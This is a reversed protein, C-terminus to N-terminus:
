KAAKSKFGPPGVSEACGIGSFATSLRWKWKELRKNVFQHGYLLGLHHLFKEAWTYTSDVTKFHVPDWANAMPVTTKPFFNRLQVVNVKKADGETHVTHQTNCMRIMIMVMTLIMYLMMMMMMMMM